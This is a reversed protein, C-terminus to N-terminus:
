AVGGEQDGQDLEGIDNGYRRSNRTAASGGDVGVPQEEFGQHDHDYYGSSSVNSALPLGFSVADAWQAALRTMRPGKVGIWVAITHGQPGTPGLVAEHAEFCRGHFDVVGNRLLPVIIQVAEEFRSYLRETSIGLMRWAREIPGASGLGLILRGNSVEDLASAMRALAVPHRLTPVTVLPDIAVRSTVEPLAPLLTWGGWFETRPGHPRDFGSHDGVFVADIGIAEAQQALERM